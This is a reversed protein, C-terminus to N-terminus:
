YHQIMVHMHMHSPVPGKWLVIHQGICTIGTKCLTAEHKNVAACGMVFIPSCSNPARAANAALHYWRTHTYMWGYVYSPVWITMKIYCTLQMIQDIDPVQLPAHQIIAKVITLCESGQLHLQKKICYAM